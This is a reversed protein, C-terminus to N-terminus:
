KVKSRKKKVSRKKKPTVTSRKKKPTVKSRKKKPSVRGNDEETSASRKKKSSNTSSEESFSFFIVKKGYKATLEETPTVRQFASHRKLFCYVKRTLLKCQDDAEYFPYKRQIQETVLKTTIENKMGANAFEKAVELCLVSSSEKPKELPLLFYFKSSNDNSIASGMRIASKNYLPVPPDGNTVSIGDVVVRNKGLVTLVFLGREGDFTISANQKSISKCDGVNIYGPDAKKARGLTAPLTSCIREFDHTNGQFSFKGAIKFYGVTPSSDSTSM